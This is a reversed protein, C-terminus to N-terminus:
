SEAPSRRSPSPSASFRNIRSTYSSEFSRSDNYSSTPSRFKYRCVPCTASTSLWEFICKKHFMHSCSMECGVEGIQFSEQCVICNDNVHEETINISPFQEAVAGGTDLEVEEARARARDSLQTRLKEIERSLLRMKKSSNDEPSYERRISLLTAPRKNKFITISSNEVTEDASDRVHDTATEDASDRVHDTGLIVPRRDDRSRKRSNNHGKCYEEGGSSITNCNNEAEDALDGVAAAFPIQRRTVNRRVKANLKTFMRARAPQYGEGGGKKGEEHEEMELIAVCIM